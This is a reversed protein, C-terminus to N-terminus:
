WFLLTTFPLPFLHLDLLFAPTWNGLSPHGPTCSSSSGDFIPSSPRFYRIMPWAQDQRPSTWGISSFHSQSWGLGQFTSMNPCTQPTSCMQSPHFLSTWTAQVSFFSSTQRTGEMEEFVYDYYCSHNDSFLWLNVSFSLIPYALSGKFSNNKSLKPQVPNESSQMPKERTATLQPHPSSEQQTLKENCHSRWNLLM